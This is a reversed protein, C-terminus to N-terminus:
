ARGRDPHYEKRPPLGSLQRVRKVLPERRRGFASGSFCAINQEVMDDTFAKEKTLLNERTPM